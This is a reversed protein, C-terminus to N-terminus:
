LLDHPLTLPTPTLWATRDVHSQSSSAVRHSWTLEETRSVERSHGLVPNVGGLLTQRSRTPCFAREQLAEYLSVLPLSEETTTSPIQSLLTTSDM